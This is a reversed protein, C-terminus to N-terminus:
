EWIVRGGFQNCYDEGDVPPDNDWTNGIAYISVTSDNYLGCESNNRIIKGGSGGLHGGGLDPTPDFETEGQYGVQLGKDNGEITNGELLASSHRQIVVGMYFGTITCNRMITRDDDRSIEVGHSETLGDDVVFYCNEVLSDHPNNIRLITYDAREVARISDVHAGEAQFRVYVAINMSHDSAPDQEITFKRLSCRASPMEVGYYSHEGSFSSQIVCREWDEGILAVGEPLELPFLEGNAADYIGPAVLITTGDQAISLARTISKLPNDISGSGAADDGTVANVYITTLQVTVVCSDMMDSNETSVAKVIVEEPDPVMDPATHTAPNNATVTGISANGGLVDNVYWDVTKDDGGEVAADLHISQGIEVAAVDPTVTVGTVPIPTAPDDDDGCGCLSSVAAVLIILVLTFRANDRM